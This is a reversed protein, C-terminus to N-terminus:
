KLIVKGQALRRSISFLISREAEFSTEHQFMSWEQHTTGHGPWMNGLPRVIEIVTKGEAYLLGWKSPLEDPQILDIPCIYFRYLGLGGSARHPKKSDKLFDARSIKSEIITSCTSRFGIADARERVGLATLDTTVVGFGQRKLWKAGLNALNDHLETPM